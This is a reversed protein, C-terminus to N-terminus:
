TIKKKGFLYMTKIRSFDLNELDQDLDKIKMSRKIRRLPDLSRNLDFIKSWHDFFSSERGESRDSQIMKFHYLLDSILDRQIM